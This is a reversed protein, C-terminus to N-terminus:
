TGLLITPLASSVHEQFSYPQNLNKSVQHRSGGFEKFPKDQCDNLKFLWSFIKGQCGIAPKCRSRDCHFCFGSVSNIAFVVIVSVLVLLSAQKM